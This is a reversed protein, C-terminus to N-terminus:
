SQSKPSGQYLWLLVLFYVAFFGTQFWYMLTGQGQLVSQLDSSVNVAALGLVTVGLAFLAMPVVQVHRIAAYFLSAYALVAFSIIKDQYAYFPTDYYVFLLPYKLGMFHAAAMLCFYVVGVGLMYRLWQAKM